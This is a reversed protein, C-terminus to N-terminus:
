RSRRVVQYRCIMFRSDARRWTRPGENRWTSIRDPPRGVRRSDGAQHALDSSLAFMEEQAELICDLSMSAWGELQVRRNGEWTTLSWDIGNPESRESM